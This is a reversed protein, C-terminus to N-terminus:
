ERHGPNGWGGQDFLEPPAVWMVWTCLCPHALCWGQVGNTHVGHRSGPPPSVAGGGLGGALGPCHSSQSDSTDPTWYPSVNLSLRYLGHLVRPAPSVKHSRQCWCHHVPKWRATRPCISDTQAPFTGQSLVNGLTSRVAGKHPACPPTVPSPADWIHHTHWHRNQEATVAGPQAAQHCGSERPWSGDPRPRSPLCSEPTGALLVCATSLTSAPCAPQPHLATPGTPPPTPGAGTLSQAGISFDSHGGEPLPAALPEPCPHGWALATSQAPRGAPVHIPVLPLSREPDALCELEGLHGELHSPPLGWTGPWLRWRPVQQM